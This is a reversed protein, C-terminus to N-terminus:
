IEQKVIKHIKFKIEYWILLLLICFSFCHFLHDKLINEGGLILSYPVLM